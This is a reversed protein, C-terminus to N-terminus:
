VCACGYLLNQTAHATDFDFAIRCVHARVTQATAYVDSCYTVFQGVVMGYWVTGYWVMGYWVVRCVGCALAMPVRLLLRLLAGCWVVGCCLVVCLWHHPRAFLIIM